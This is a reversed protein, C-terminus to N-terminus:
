GCPWPLLCSPPQPEPFGHSGRGAGLAPRRPPAPRGRRDKLLSKLDSMEPPRKLDGLLLWLRSRTGHRALMSRIVKPGFIRSQRKCPARGGQRDRENTTTLVRNFNVTCSQMRVIRATRCLMGNPDPIQVGLPGYRPSRLMHTAFTSGKYGSDTMVERDVRLEHGAFETLHEAAPSSKQFLKDRRENAFNRRFWRRLIAPVSAHHLGFRIRVLEQSRHQRDQPSRSTKPFRFRPLKRLRRLDPIMPMKSRDPPPRFESPATCNSHLPHGIFEAIEVKQSAQPPSDSRDTSLRDHV